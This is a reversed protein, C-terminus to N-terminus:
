TPASRVDDKEVHVQRVSVSEFHAAFYPLADCAGDDEEGRPHLVGVGDRSEGRASVVVDRLREGKLDEARARPRVEDSALTRGLAGDDAERAPDRDIEALALCAHVPTRYLEGSLVEVDDGKEGLPGALDEVAGHHVVQCPVLRSVGGDDRLVDAADSAGERLGAALRARDGRM